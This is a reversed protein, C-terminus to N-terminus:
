QSFDANTILNASANYTQVSLTYTTTANVLVTPQLSNPNVPPTWNFSMYDGTVSGNLQTIGGPFCISKDTGANVTVGCASTQGYVALAANLFVLTFFFARRMRSIQICLLFYVPSYAASPLM